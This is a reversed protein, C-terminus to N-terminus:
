SIELKHAVVAGRDRDVVPIIVDKDTVIGKNWARHNHMGTRV